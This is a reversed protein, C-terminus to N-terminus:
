RDPDSGAATGVEICVMKTMDRLIMKGESLAIPGWVDHGSLVQASDLERYEPATADLLRLMGTKGELIFLMGDAWLYSGLEFAAKGQSNWVVKGDFDLRTLLGRKKRGVALLHDQLVIPTHVESNWESSDLAFVKEAAFTEGEKRVRVMLSGAEYGSTMFVRDGDIAVPSPAVAVNFKWPFSWLVRGDAASVGLPGELTCWLYQKVGCLAAPMVSAHTLLRRETNPTRWLEKGTAKEFAVMLAEAGATALIVRDPEILPCQGNYWPPIRTKYEKVLSKRWLEKGTAADICHFTCKPDLSFVYKDDAAPVSRTIGHNARIRRPETFRWLEKGDALSLCRVYWENAAESYDNFYVRGGVIAASAYGQCADTTWLVKPGGEPWKRLLGTELSINDRRPGRFQPWDEAVAPNALAFGALFFLSAYWLRSTGMSQKWHEGTPPHRAGAGPRARM